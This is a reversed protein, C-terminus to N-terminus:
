KIARKVADHWRRETEEIMRPLAAFEELDACFEIDEWWWAPQDAEGGAQYLHGHAKYRQWRRWCHDPDHPLPIELETIQDFYRNLYGL